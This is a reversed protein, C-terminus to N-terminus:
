NEQDGADSNMTVHVGSVRELFAKMASFSQFYCEEDGHVQQLHGRWVLNQDHGELWFRAVFSTSHETHSKGQSIM